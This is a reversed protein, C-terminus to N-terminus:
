SACPRRLFTLPPSCSRRYVRVLLNDAKILLCALIVQIYPRKEGPLPLQLFCRGANTIETFAIFALLGRVASLWDLSFSSSSSPPPM